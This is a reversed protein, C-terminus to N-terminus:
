KQSVVPKRFNNIPKPPSPFTTLPNRNPLLRPSSTLTNMSSQPKSLATECSNTNFPLGTKGERAKEIDILIDNKSCIAFNNPERYTSIVEPRISTYPRITPEFNRMEPHSFKRTFPIKQKILGIKPKKKWKLNRRNKFATNRIQYESRINAINYRPLQNIWPNFPQKSSIEVNDQIQTGLQNILWNKIWQNRTWETLVV